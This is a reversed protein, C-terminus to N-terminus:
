RKSRRVAKGLKEAIEDADSTELDADGIVMSIAWLVQKRVSADEDEVMRLLPMLARGDEIMGLAWAVQERVASSSDDIANVLGDVARRDEIMGLGWAAQERVGEDPDSMARSLGEVASAHEIMGLAWAAQGRVEADSDQLARLLPEVGKSDEIMGLAWASRTRVRTADDGLLSALPDVADANEILGLALAANDRVVPSENRLREILPEVARNGLRELARAAERGPTSGEDWEHQVRSRDRCLRGEVPSDDGLLALLVPMAPAADDTRREAIGCAAMARDHASRAQLQARLDDGDMRDRSQALPSRPLVFISVFVLARSGTM